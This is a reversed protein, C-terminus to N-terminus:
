AKERCAPLIRHVPADPGGSGMVLCVVNGGWGVLWGVCGLLGNWRHEAQALGCFGWESWECKVASGGCAKGVLIERVM